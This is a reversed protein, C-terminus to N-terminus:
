NENLYEPVDSDPLCQQKVLPSVHSKLSASSVRQPPFTSHDLHDTSSQKIPTCVWTLKNQKATIKIRYGCGGIAKYIKVADGLFLQYDHITGIGLVDELILDFPLGRLIKRLYEEPLNPLVYTSLKNEPVSPGASKVTTLPENSNKKPTNKHLTMATLM